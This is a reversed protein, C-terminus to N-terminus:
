ENHQPKRGENEDSDKTPLGQTPVGRARVSVYRGIQAALFVAVLFSVLNGVIGVLIWPKEFSAPNYANFPFGFASSAKDIQLDFFQMYILDANGLAFASVVLVVAIFPALGYRFTKKNTM